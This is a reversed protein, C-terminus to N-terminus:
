ALPIQAVMLDGVNYDHDANIRAENLLYNWQKGHSQALQANSWVRGPMMMLDYLVGHFVARHHRGYQDTDWQTATLTPALAVYTNMTGATDPVPALRVEGIKVATVVAPTGAYNEPWSPYQARVKSYGVFPLERKNSSILTDAYIVSVVEAYSQTPVLSYTYDGVVLTVQTAFDRWVRARYCLDRVIKRAANEMVQQPCGALHASIESTMAAFTTM